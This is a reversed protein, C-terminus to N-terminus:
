EKNRVDVNIKLRWLGNVFRYADNSYDPVYSQRDDKLKPSYPVLHDFVISSDSSFRLSMMANSAYELVTRYKTSEENSFWKKGFVISGDPEFNLVEIIKRSIFPNGYDIGLLIWCKKNQIVYPRIEYYLAGYWNTETYTTDTNVPSESYIATLNYVRNKGDPETKRIFYCNYRSPSNGLILNWTVIKLSSDPSTIQGLYRLNSFRHNFVTDSAVYSDLIGRISDNIRIRANDDYNNVLRDYLKELVDSVETTAIQGKAPNISLAAIIILYIIRLRM